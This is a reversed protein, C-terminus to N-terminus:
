EGQLKWRRVTTRFYVARGAGMLDNHFFWAVANGTGIPVFRRAPIGPDLAGSYSMGGEKCFYFSAAGLNLSMLQVSYDSSDDGYDWVHAVRRSTGDPMDVLDGALPFAIRAALDDRAQQRAALIAADREDFQPQM